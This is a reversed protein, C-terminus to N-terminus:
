SPLKNQIKLLAGAKITKWFLCPYTRISTGHKLMSDQTVKAPLPAKDQEPYFRYLESRFRKLSRSQVPTYPPHLIRARGMMPTVFKPIQYHIKLCSFELSFANDFVQSSVSFEVSPTIGQISDNNPLGPSPSLMFGVTEPADSQLQGILEPLILIDSSNIGQNLGHIALVNQGATLLDIASSIDIDVSNVAISDSRNVTAGSRWNLIIPPM